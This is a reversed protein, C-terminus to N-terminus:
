PMWPNGNAPLVLNGAADTFAQLAQLFSSYANAAADGTLAAYTDGLAQGGTRTIADWGYGLSANLYYLFLLGCGNGDPDRDDVINATIYDQAGNSWWGNETTAMQPGLEAHQVVALARSLAEGNTAGCDWGNNLTAEFVEVMEAANAGVSLQAQDDVFFTTADCGCHYAGGVNPRVYVTFPVGPPELGFIGSFAEYDAEIAGAIAQASAPNGGDVFIQAHVTQAVPSAGPPIACPDQQATLHRPLADPSLPDIFVHQDM